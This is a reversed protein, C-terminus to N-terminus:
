RKVGAWMGDGLPAISSQLAPEYALMDNFQRMAAVEVDTPDASFLRSFAFANYVLILGGRRVIRLSEQLYLPYGRKDVDLFAAASSDAPRYTLYASDERQPDRLIIALM